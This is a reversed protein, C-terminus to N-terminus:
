QILAKASIDDIYINTKTGDHQYIYIKANGTGAAIRQFTIKHWESDSIYDSTITVAGETGYYNQLRIRYNDIFEGKVWFTVYYVMGATVSFDDSVMGEGSNTLLRWSHTPSYAFTTSQNVSDDAETGFATWNSNLEMDGNALLEVGLTDPQEDDMLVLLPSQGFISFTFTTFLIMLFLKKM